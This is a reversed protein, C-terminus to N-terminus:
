RAVARHSREKSPEALEEGKEDRKPAAFEEAQLREGLYRSYVHTFEAGFLCILASYYVWVLFVVFSGAAGYSSGYSTHGLYMGIVYKGLSFLVSTFLAGIVVNKLRIRVDPLFKYIMAFLIAVLVIWIALNLGNWLWAGAPLWQDLHNQFIQLMTSLVLSVVLLLGVALVIGFSRLRAFLLKRLVSNEPNPEVGWIDNLAAQLEIFVMSSGILITITSVVLAWPTHVSASASDLVQEITKAGADGVLGGLENALDTRVSYGADNLLLGGIAVAIILVPALSFVTYFAIAAAMRFTNDEWWEMSTQKVLNWVFKLKM